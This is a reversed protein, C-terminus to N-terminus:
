VGEFSSKIEAFNSVDVRHITLRSNNKVHDLNEMRGSSLSDLVTVEYGEVLLREVLNSGIFSACGTVLVRRSHNM